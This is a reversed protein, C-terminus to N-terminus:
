GPQSDAAGAGDSASAAVPGAAAAPAAVSLRRATRALRSDKTAKRWEPYGEGFVQSPQGGPSWVVAYGGQALSFPALARGTHNTRAGAPTAEDFWAPFVFDSVQVPQGDVTVRYGWSEVPDAVELAWLRGDPGLAWRNVYADCLDELVEHSFAGSVTLADDTGGWLPAGGNDLIAGVNVRGFFTGDPGETHWALADPEADSDFFGIVHSGPPVGAPLRLSGDQPESAPDIHGAFVVAPTHCQWAPNAHYRVQHAVARCALAADADSLRTSCNVAAVFM